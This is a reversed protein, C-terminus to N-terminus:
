AARRTALKAVDGTRAKRSSVKEPEGPRADHHPIGAGGEEGTRADSQPIEATAGLETRADHNQMASGGEIETRADHNASHSGGELERADHNSMTAGAEMETRAELQPIEGTVEMERALQQARGMDALSLGRGARAMDGCLADFRELVARSDLLPSM